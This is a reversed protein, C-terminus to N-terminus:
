NSKFLKTQLLFFFHINLTRLLPPHFLLQSCTFGRARTKKLVLSFPFLPGPHSTLIIPRAFMHHRCFSMVVHTM